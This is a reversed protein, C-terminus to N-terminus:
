VDEDEGQAGPPYWEDHVERIQAIIEDNTLNETLQIEKVIEEYYKSGEGVFDKIQQKVDVPIKPPKEPKVYNIHTLKM